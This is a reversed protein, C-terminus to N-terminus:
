IYIYIYIIYDGRTGEEEDTGGERGGEKRGEKREAERGQKRGERRAEKRGAQGGAGGPPVFFCLALFFFLAGFFIPDGDAFRPPNARIHRSSNPGKLSHGARTHNNREAM